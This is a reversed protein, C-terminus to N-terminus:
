VHACAIYLLTIFKMSTQNGAINKIANITNIITIITACLIARVYLLKTIRLIYRYQLIYQTNHLIRNYRLKHTCVHVYITLITALIITTYLRLIILLLM